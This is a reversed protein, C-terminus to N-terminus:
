AGGRAGVLGATEVLFYPQVASVVGALVGVVTAIAMGAAALMLTNPIRVKLDEVVPIRSRISRGLDGHTLRVLFDGFQVLIPRDLGLERRLEEVFERTAAEGAIVQAPDGPIIRVMVFVIFAVGVLVPITLLLRKAIYAGM